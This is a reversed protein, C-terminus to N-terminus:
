EYEIVLTQKVQRRIKELEQKNDAYAIFFGARSRDDGPERITDGVNIELGFEIVNKISKLQEVGIINKVIGPKFDFFELVCERDKYDQNITIDEESIYENLALKILVKYNDVGSMIPVIHSSINTGGGRAAIEILYFDGNFYKYEAHTLGYPLKMKEVLEKNCERLKEYNNESNNNSFWLVKTINSNHEFQYKKSIALPIYKDKLKVGDITFEHGEIYEEALVVKQKNSFQKSIEFNDYIQQEDTITVVGRSSQSDIPKIIIKNYKRFFEIAEDLSECLRFDPYKIGNEKCFKRMVYKNTFREAIDSGIGNLGMQENLFAVTPVAIDSQDTIIADPKFKKAIELNIERDLVNAEAVEDAFEFSPSNSYLNTNMLYYGMEKLKKVLPVQWIGGAVVMIKKM